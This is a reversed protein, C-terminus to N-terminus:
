RRARARRSGVAPRVTAEALLRFTGLEITSETWERVVPELKSFEGAREVLAQERQGESDWVEVTLYQRPNVTNRMMSIGRFGPSAGFVRSWAGGPGYSLEFSAQAGEKVEYSRVIEIM